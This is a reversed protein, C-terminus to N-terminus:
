SYYVRFLEKLSQITLVILNGCLIRVLIKRENTFEAILQQMKERLFVNESRLVDIEHKQQEDCSLPDTQTNNIRKSNTTLRKRRVASRDSSVSEPQKHIIQQAIAAFDLVQLNEGFFRIKPALTVITNIKEYGLLSKQLFMTLKSERFPVVQKIKSQQNQFMLDFCRHLLMLSKNIQRTERLRNDINGSKNFRESGALDCFKYTAISFKNPYSFRILNVILICHSRNSNTNINTSAYNIQALGANIVDYADGASTVHISVLDQIYTNGDNSIIRLNNKRTFQLSGSNLLDFVNENYIEAFSIWVVLYQWDNSAPVFRHENQIQQIMKRHRKHGVTRVFEATISMELRLNNESMVSLNGKIIKAVPINCIVKDDVTFIQVIARQVIGADNVAGFMTYTKGSGSTGYTLITLSEDNQISPFVTQNYVDCQTSQKHFIETFTFHKEKLDKNNTATNEIPRVKLVNNEVAYSINPKKSPKLRLYVSATTKIDNSNVNCMNPHSISLYFLEIAEAECIINSNTGNLM